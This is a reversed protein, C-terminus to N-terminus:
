LASIFSNAAKHKSANYFTNFTKDNTKLSSDYRVRVIHNNKNPIRDMNLSSYYVLEPLKACEKTREVKSEPFMLKLKRFEEIGNCIFAFTGITFLEKKGAMKYVEFEIPHIYGYDSFSLKEIKSNADEVISDIIEEIITSAKTLTMPETKGWVNFGFFILSKDM